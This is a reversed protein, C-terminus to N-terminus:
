KQVSCEPRCVICLGMGSGDAARQRSGTQICHLLRLVTGCVPSGDTIQPCARNLLHLLEASVFEALQHQQGQALHQVDSLHGQLQRVACAIILRAHHAWVLM